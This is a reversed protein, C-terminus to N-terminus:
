IKKFLCKCQLLICSYIDNSYLIFVETFPRIIKLIMWFILCIGIGLTYKKLTKDFIRIYLLAIWLTFIVLFISSQCAHSM